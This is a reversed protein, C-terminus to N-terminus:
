DRNLRLASLVKKSLVKFAKDSNQLTAREDVIVQGIKAMIEQTRMKRERYEESDIGACEVVLTKDAGKILFDPRCWNGDDEDQETPFIDFVPKFIEFAQNAAHAQAQCWRLVSLTEREYNSDVLVASASDHAHAYAQMAHCRKEQADYRLSVLVLFPARALDGDRANKRVEGEVLLEKGKHKIVRDAVDDAQLLLFGQLPKGKPWQDERAFREFTQAPWSETVSKWSTWLVSGLAIGPLIKLSAAFNRIADMDRKFQDDSPKGRVVNVKAGDILYFLRKALTGPRAGQSRQAVGVDISPGDIVHPTDVDYLVFSPKTRPRAGHAKKEPGDGGDLEGEGWEFVCGPAHQGWNKHRFFTVRGSPTRQFGVIALEEHGGGTMNSDALCDCEIWCHQSRLDDMVKAARDRHASYNPVSTDGARVTRLADCDIQPLIRIFKRSANAEIVRM